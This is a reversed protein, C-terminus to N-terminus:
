WIIGEKTFEVDNDIFYEKIGQDSTLYDEDARLVEFVLRHLADIFAKESISGTALKMAVKYFETDKGYEKMIKSATDLSHEVRLSIDKYYLNFHQVNIGIYDMDQFICDWWDYSTNIDVYKDLAKRQTEKPLEDFYYLTTEITRM